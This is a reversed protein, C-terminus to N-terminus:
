FSYFTRIQNKAHLYMDMLAVFQYYLNLHTHYPERGILNCSKLFKLIEFVVSLALKIEKSKLWRPDMTVRYKNKLTCLNKWDNPNKYSMTRNIRGTFFLEKESIFM